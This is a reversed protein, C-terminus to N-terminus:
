RRIFELPTTFLTAGEYLGRIVCGESVIRSELMHLAIVHAPAVHELIVDRSQVSLLTNFTPILVVDIGEQDLDFPELNDAAYDVDGLHLIKLGGLEVLYGFNQVSSFDNGFQDFHRLHLVSVPVGNVVLDVREGFAPAVAEIQSNISSLSATVPPPGIFRADPMASMFPVASAPDVHDGHNHTALALDIGDFPAQGRELLNRSATPLSIWDGAARHLADILVRHQDDEILVGDNALYTIKVTRVALTVEASPASLAGLGAVIGDPLSLVFVVYPRGETLVDGDVDVTEATFTVVTSGAEPAREVFREPAVGEAAALDFTAAAESKVVYIRLASVLELNGPADFRVELDRGDGLNTVDDVRLVSVVPAPPVTLAIAASPSSLADITANTGDAVALVYIRYPVEEEIPRGDSTLADATLDVTVPGGVKAVSTTNSAPLGSATERSLSVNAPVVVVRYEFVHSEDSSPQFSIRLDRGDGLNGIDGAVVSRAPPAAVPTELPPGEISEGGCAVTFAVVVGAFVLRTGAQSGPNTFARM